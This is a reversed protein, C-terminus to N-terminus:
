PSCASQAGCVSSPPSLLAFLPSLAQLPKGHRPQSRHYSQWVSRSDTLLTKWSRVKGPDSSADRHDHRGGLSYVPLGEAGVSQEVEQQQTVQREVVARLEDIETKVETLQQAM